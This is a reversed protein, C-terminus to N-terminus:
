VSDCEYRRQRMLEVAVRLRGVPDKEDALRGDALVDDDYVRRPQAALLDKDATSSPFIGRGVLAAPLGHADDLASRDHRVLQEPQRLRVLRCACSSLEVRSGRRRLLDYCLLRVPVLSPQALLALGM